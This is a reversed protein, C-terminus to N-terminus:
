RDRCSSANIGGQASLNPYAAIAPSQPCSWTRLSACGSPRFGRAAVTLLLSRRAKRFSESAPVALSPVCLCDLRRASLSSRAVKLPPHLHDSPHSQRESACSRGRVPRGAADNSPADVLVRRFSVVSLRFVFTPAVVACLGALGGFRSIAYPSVRALGAPEAPNEWGSGGAKLRLVCMLVSLGVEFFCM